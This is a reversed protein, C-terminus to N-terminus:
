LHRRILGVPDKLPQVHVLVSCDVQLLEDVAEVVTVCLLHVNVPSLHGYRPLVELQLQALLGLVDGPSLQASDHHLYVAPMHNIYSFTGFIHLREVSCFGGSSCPHYLFVKTKSAKM